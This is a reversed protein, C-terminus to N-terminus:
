FVPYQELFFLFATGYNCYYKYEKMQEAEEPCIHIRHTNKWRALKGYWKYVSNYYLVNICLNRFEKRWLLLILILIYYSIRSVLHAHLITPYPLVVKKQKHELMSEATSVENTRESMPNRHHAHTVDHMRGLAFVFDGRRWLELTCGIRKYVVKPCVHQWWCIKLLTCM